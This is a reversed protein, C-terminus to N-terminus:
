RSAFLIPPNTGAGNYQATVLPADLKSVALYAMRKACKASTMQEAISRRGSDAGCFANSSSNIRRLAVKAGNDSRLNLDGVKVSMTSTQAFVPGVGASALLVATATLTLLKRAMTKDKRHV